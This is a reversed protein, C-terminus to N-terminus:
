KKIKKKRNDDIISANEEEVELKLLDLNKKEAKLSVSVKKKYILGLILVFIIPTVSMYGIIGFGNELLYKAQQGSPYKLAISQAVSLCLPVLFASTIAGGTVGGSDYAIGIFLDDCFITLLVSIAYLPVIFWLISIELLINLLCLLGAFGLGIALFYKLIKGNIYGNTIEEVQKSLVMISPECLTIIFCLIFSIPLLLWKFWQADVGINVLGFFIKGNDGNELFAKAFHFGANTFGFDIGFLFIFLGIYVVISAILLRLLNKKKLKIFFFNYILFLVLVPLLALFSSLLNSTLIEHWLSTTTNLSALDLPDTPFWMGKIFGFLLFALLPGVSALGIIGFQDDNQKKKSITRAVGIGLTLIFPTSLDGTTAGSVDFSIGIFESKTFICLLIIVAYSIIFIWKLSINKIIKYLAFAVFAGTGFACIFIIIWIGVSADIRNYQNAIVSLAPEALTSLVGFLFGFLVMLIPLKLKSLNNGVYEGMPLISSELGIIFFTQGILVLVYSVILTILDSVGMPKIFLLVVAILGALPLSQLLIEKFQKLFRM